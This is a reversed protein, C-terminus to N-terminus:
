SCAETFTKEISICFKENMILYKFFTQSIATMKDQALHTMATLNGQLTNGTTWNVVSWTILHNHVPM